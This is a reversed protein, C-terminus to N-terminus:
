FIKMSRLEGLDNFVKGTIMILSGELVRDTKTSIHIIPKGDFSDSTKDENSELKEELELIKEQLELTSLISTLSESSKIASKADNQDAFISNEGVLLSIGIVLIVLCSIRLKSNTM